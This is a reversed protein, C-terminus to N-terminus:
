INFGTYSYTAAPRKKTKKKLKCFRGHVQLRIDNGEGEELVPSVSVVM